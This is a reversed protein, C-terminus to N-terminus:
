AKQKLPPIYTEFTNDSYFFVIKELVADKREETIKTTILQKEVINNSIEPMKVTEPQLIQPNAEAPVPKEPEADFLNGQRMMKTMNGTGMMLWEANLSKYRVLIKQVFEFGPNNRGSLIHSVSSRQVGIEDAFRTPSLGEATLFKQIRDRIDTEM